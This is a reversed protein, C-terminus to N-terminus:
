EDFLSYFQRQQQRLTFDLREQTIAGQELLIDGLLRTQGAQLAARQALLAATLQAATVFRNNLLFQGLRPM